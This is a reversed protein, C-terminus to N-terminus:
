NLSNAPSALFNDQSIAQETSEPVFFLLQEASLHKLPYNLFKDVLQERTISTPSCTIPKVALKNEVPSFQINEKYHITTAPITTTLVSPTVIATRLVISNNLLARDINAHACYVDMMTPKPKNNSAFVTEDSNALLGQTNM